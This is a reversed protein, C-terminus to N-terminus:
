SLCPKQRDAKEWITLFIVCGRKVVTSHNLHGRIQNQKPDIPHGREFLLKIKAAAFPEGQSINKSAYISRKFQLNALERESFNFSQHGLVTSAVAVDNVLRRMEQQDTSFDADVGECSRNHLFHKDIFKGSLAVRSVAVVNGVTHDSLGVCCNFREKLYPITLLNAGEPQAPYDSACVLLSM